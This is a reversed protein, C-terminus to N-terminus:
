RGRQKQKWQLFERYLKPDEAEFGPIRNQVEAASARTPAFGPRDEAGKNAITALKEEAVFYRKWGPVNAALNIEKWKPHYSPQKLADFREFYYQIFREVRRFRDSDKPWNYVALVAPIALTEIRQ